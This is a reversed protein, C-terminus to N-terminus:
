FIYTPFIMSILHLSYGYCAQGNQIKFSIKEGNLYMFYEPNIYHGNKFGEAAVYIDYTQGDFRFIFRNDQQILDVFEILYKKESIGNKLIFYGGFPDSNNKQFLSVTKHDNELVTLESQFRGNKKFGSVIRNKISGAFSHGISQLTIHKGSIVTMKDPHAFTTSSLFVLFVFFNQFM